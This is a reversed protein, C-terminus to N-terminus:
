PTTLLSARALGQTKGPRDRVLPTMGLNENSKVFTDPRRLKVRVTRSRKVSFSVWNEHSIRRLIGISHAPVNVM